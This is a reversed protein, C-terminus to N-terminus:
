EGSQDIMKKHLRKVRKQAAAREPTVILKYTEGVIKDPEWIFCVEKTCSIPNGCQHPKLARIQTEQEQRKFQEKVRSVVPNEQTTTAKPGIPGIDISQISKGRFLDKIKKFM